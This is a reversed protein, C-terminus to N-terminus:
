VKYKQLIEVLEIVHKTKYNNILFKLDIYLGIIKEYSPTGDVWDAEAYGFYAMNDALGGKLNDKLENSSKELMEKLGCIYKDKMDCPLIFANYIKKESPENTVNSENEVDSKEIANQDDNKLRKELYAGYTIQKQIDSSSPFNNHEGNITDYYKSDLIYYEKEQDKELVMITDPRLKSAEKTEGNALHWTARPYFESIDPVNGFMKDIMKEFVTHYSRVGYSFSVHENESLGQLINLLHTLREKKNDLFTTKLERKIIGCYYSKPIKTPIKVIKQNINWIWGLMDISLQLCLKYIDTLIKHVKVKKDVIISNYIFEDKQNIYPVQKITKKWNIRGSCNRTQENGFECYIGNKIYDGILWLMSEFATNANNLEVFSKGTFVERTNVFSITKLFILIGTKIKNRRTKDIDLWNTVQSNLGINYLSPLYIGVNENEFKIGVFSDDDVKYIKFNGNNMQRM